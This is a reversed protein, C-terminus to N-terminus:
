SKFWQVIRGLTEYWAGTTQQLTKVHPLYYPWAVQGNNKVSPSAPAPIANVGYKKFYAMARPLHSASTVLVVNRNLVRPAILQAEEETDQPFNETLIKHKPIGLIIAAQKVKEANSSEDDSAYGSTIIQAEPHLHYIRVAEVLRELSSSKLQSTAPLGEASSHAGGLIIIYDVPKVSKTFAPYNDELPTMLTDSLPPFSSFFLLTTALLLSWFSLKPKLRYFVIAIFLLLLIISLPMLMFSIIKKLLFLDM